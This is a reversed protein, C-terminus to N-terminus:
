VRPPPAHPTAARGAPSARCNRVRMCGRALWRCSAVGARRRVQQSKPLVIVNPETNAKVAVMRNVFDVNTEPPQLPVILAETATRHTM